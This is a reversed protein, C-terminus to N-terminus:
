RISIKFTVTKTASKKYNDNGAATVKVKADYTKGKKLGKKVTVQGTKGNIRIKGSGSTKTYTKSGQGKNKFNIVKSVDLKQDKKKLKSYEVTATKPKISFTNEAKGISWSITKNGTSGDSWKFTYNTDTKLKATAKYKGANKTKVTGSLTYGSGGKVGTQTKKNYILGKEAKPVAIKKVAKDIKWKITKADSSGDKWIFDYNADTTLAASATYSGANVASTTGSLRYGSGGKVGTQTKGNFVLGTEAKPVAIKKVAKDIKWKITKAESTGDSWIFDYNTDTTLSASATYNGANVASTTGSLTYGSGGKVGTQTEGNFVLGTEAHAAVSMASIMFLMMIVATITIKCISRNATMTTRRKGSCNGVIEGVTVGYGIIIIYIIAYVTSSNCKVTNESAM